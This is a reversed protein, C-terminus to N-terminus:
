YKKCSANPCHSMVQEVNTDGYPYFESYEELEYGCEPCYGEKVQFDYCIVYNDGEDYTIYNIPHKNITCIGNDSHICGMNECYGEFFDVLSIKKPM